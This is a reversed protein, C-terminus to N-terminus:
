VDKSEGCKSFLTDMRLSWEDYLAPDDEKYIQWLRRKSYSNSEKIAHFYEERVGNSILVSDATSQKDKDKNTRKAIKIIGQSNLRILKSSGNEVDNKDVVPKATPIPKSYSPKNLPVIFVRNSPIRSTDSNSKIIDPNYIGNLQNYTTVLKNNGVIPAFLYDQESNIKESWDNSSLLLRYLDSVKLNLIITEPSIKIMNNQGVYIFGNKSKYAIM